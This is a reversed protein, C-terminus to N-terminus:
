AVQAAGLDQFRRLAHEDLPRRVVGAIGAEVIQQAGQARRLVPGDFRRALEPLGHPQVRIM